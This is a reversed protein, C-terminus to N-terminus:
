KGDKIKSKKEAVDNLFISFIDRGNSSAYMIDDLKLNKSKIMKLVQPETLNLLKMNDKDINGSIILALKINPYRKKSFVSLNGSTELIALNVEDIDLIGEKHIQNLLDDITYSEKKLNKYLIKGNYVLVLPSGDVVQRLRAIHLLIFSFIKQLCLLLFLCLLAPLFLKKDDIGMAGIDAIILLIVLDFISIQGVERKGLARIIVMLVIFIILTRLLIMLYENM